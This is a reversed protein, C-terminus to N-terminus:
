SDEERLHITCGSLNYFPERVAPTLNEVVDSQVLVSSNEFCIPIIPAMTRLYECLARMAGARDAAAAYGELLQATRESSWRGINLDSWSALLPSLNWDATLRAECYCLDFERNAIAAQYEDWPLIRVETPIGAATYNEAISRAAAIKFSNEANVLLSLTREPTTWGSEALAASVAFSSYAEELGAPYLPCAPSVPFQAPLAHGSFLGEAVTDRNVGLYLARRFTSINLPWYDMNCALYHLNTTNADYYRVDGTIGAPSDAALDTVILQVDRSSFRYLMAGQAEDLAIRQVPQGSGRWWIPNAMLCAGNDEAAYFYPGTGLPVGGGAAKCIPVDLLAPLASNPASLTITLSNGSANLWDIQRLRTRYRPSERAREISARAEVATLPSGDSFSVGQRLLFTYSTFDDNHSYSECLNYEAELRPDLRFLGEYILSAIVQQMGDPCAIPDLTHNPEYPLAFREPLRSKPEERPQAAAQVPIPSELEPPEPDEEQWCGGLLVCLCLCLVAIGRRRTEASKM